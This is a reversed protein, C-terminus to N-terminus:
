QNNQNILNIIVRVMIDKENPESLAIMMVM